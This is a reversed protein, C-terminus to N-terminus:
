FIEQYLKYVIAGLFCVTVFLLFNALVLQRSVRANLDLLSRTNGLANAADQRAHVLLTNVQEQDLDYVHQATQGNLGLEGELTYRAVAHNDWHDGKLGMQHQKKIRAQLESTAMVGEENAV